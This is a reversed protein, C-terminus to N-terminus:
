HNASLLPALEPGHQNKYLHFQSLIVIDFTVTGASGIIYSLEKLLFQGPNPQALSACLISSTYLLNGCLTASFLMISVGEVSRRRHNKYIQPIRSVIYMATSFYALCYGLDLSPGQSQAGIPAAWARGLSGAVTALTVLSGLRKRFTIPDAKRNTNDYECRITEEMVAVEYYQEERTYLYYQICLILDMCCYYCSLVTQFGLQGTMICGLFGSVDGAIWVALFALSLGDVSKNVYNEHIQPIQACIWTCVSLSGFVQSAAQWFAPTM